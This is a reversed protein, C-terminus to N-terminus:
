VATVIPKGPMEPPAVRSTRERELAKEPLYNSLQANPLIRAASYRAGSNTMPQRVRASVGAAGVTPRPPYCCSRDQLGRVSPDKV